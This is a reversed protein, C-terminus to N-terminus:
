SKTWTNLLLGKILNLCCEFNLTKLSLQNLIKRYMSFVSIFENRLGKLLLSKYYRFLDSDMGDMLEVMDETLQFLITIELWDSCRVPREIIDYRNVKFPSTEFGLNKGPSSNLM